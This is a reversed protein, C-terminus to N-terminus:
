AGAAPQGRGAGRAARAPLRLSRRCARDPHGDCSRRGAGLPVVAVQPRGDMAMVPGEFRHLMGRADRVVVATRLGPWEAITAPDVEDRVIEETTDDVSELILERIAFEIEFRVATPEGPLVVPEITPRAAALPAVLESFATASLDDRLDVIEPAKAADIALLAGHASPTIRVSSRDVPM